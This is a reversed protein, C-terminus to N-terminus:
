NENQEMQDLKLYFQGFLPPDHSRTLRRHWKFMWIHLRRTEFHLLFEFHHQSLGFALSKFPYECVVSCSNCQFTQTLGTTLGFNKKKRAM